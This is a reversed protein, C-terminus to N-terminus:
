SKKTARAELSLEAQSKRLYLPSLQNEGIEFGSDKMKLSLMLLEEATPSVKKEAVDEEELGIKVLSLSDLEKKTIVKAEEIAKGSKDRKQIYVLGSLADVVTLFDGKITHSRLYSYSILDFTTIPIVKSEKGACFGKVLAMGIRIGTFSGPGVVLAYCDNKDISSGINDLMKDIKYLINESHKCNSDLTAFDRKNNIEVAILAQKGSSSIAIM